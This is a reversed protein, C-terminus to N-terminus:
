MSILTLQGLVPSDRTSRSMLKESRIKSSIMFIRLLKPIRLATYALSLGSRISRCKIEMMSM